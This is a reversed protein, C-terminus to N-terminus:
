RVAEELAAALTDIDSKTHIETVCFLSTNGLEPFEKSIDKGGIIGSRLLSRNVETVTKRTSDLNVTFEEFHTANFLPVRVGEIESLRKMAYNSKQMITGALEQIGSPGLLSM